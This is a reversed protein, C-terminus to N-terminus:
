HDSSLEQYPLVDGTLPGRLMGATHDILNLFPASSREEIARRCKARNGPASGADPAFLRQHQRQPHRRLHPARAGRCAARDADLPRGSSRRSKTSACRSPPTPPRVFLWVVGRVGTSSSRTLRRSSPSPQPPKLGFGRYIRSVATQSMRTTAAISRTSWHPAGPAGGVAHQIIWGVDDDISRPSAPRPEDHLMDVGRKTFRQPRM